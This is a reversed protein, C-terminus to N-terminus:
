LIGMKKALRKGKKTMKKTTMNNNDTYLMVMGTTIIGGLLLGKVFKMNM